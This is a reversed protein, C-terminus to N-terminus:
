SRVIGCCGQLIDFGYCNSENSVYEKLISSGVNFYHFKARCDCPDAATMFATFPYRVADAILALSRTKFGVSNTM